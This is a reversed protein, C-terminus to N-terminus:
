VSLSWMTRNMADQLAVGGKKVIALRFPAVGGSKVPLTSYTRNGALNTVVLRGDTTLTLVPPDSLRLNSRVVNYASGATVFVDGNANLTMGTGLATVQQALLLLRTGGPATSLMPLTTSRAGLSWLKDLRILNADCQVMLGAAGICLNLSNALTLLGDDYHRMARNSSCPSLITTANASGLCVTTTTNDVQYPNYFRQIPNWLWLDCNPGNPVVTNTSWSLCKNTALHILPQPAASWSCDDCSNCSTLPNTFVNWLKAVNNDGRLSWITTGDANKIVVDGTDTVALSQGFVSGAEWVLRYLSDKVQFSGKRSFSATYPGRAYWMDATNSEWMTREWDKLVLNGTDRLILSFRGSPSTLAQNQSISTNCDATITRNLYTINPPLANHPDNQGPANPETRYVSPWPHNIPYKFGLSLTSLTSSWIKVQAGDLLEIEGDNQVYLIYGNSGHVGVPYNLHLPVSSWIPTWANPDDVYVGQAEQVIHGDLTIRLRTLSYLNTIGTQWKITDIHRLALNSTASTPDFALTYEGNASVLNYYAMLGVLPSMMGDSRMNRSNEGAVYPTYYYRNQDRTFPKIPDGCGIIDLVCSLNAPNGNFGKLHQVETTYIDVFGTDTSKCLWPTAVSLVNPKCVPIACTGPPIYITSTTEITNTTATNNTETSETTETAQTASNIDGGRNDVIGKDTTTGITHSNSVGYTNHNDGTTTNSQTRTRSFAIVLTKDDTHTSSFDCSFSGGVPVEASAQVGVKVSVDTTVSQSFTCAFTVSATTDLSTTNATSSGSGLTTDTGTTDSNDEFGIDTNKTWTDQHDWTNTNTTSGEDTTVHTSATQNDHTKTLGYQINLAQSGNDDTTNAKNFSQDVINTISDIHNSTTGASWNTTNSATYATSSGKMVALSVSTTYSTAFSQSFSCPQSSSVNLQGNKECDIGNSLPVPIGSGLRAVTLDPPMGTLLVHYPNAMPGASVLPICVDFPKAQPVNPDRRAVHDDVQGSRTGPDPDSRRRHKHMGATGDPFFGQDVAAQM